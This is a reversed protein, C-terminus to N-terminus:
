PLYNKVERLVDARGAWPKYVVRLDLPYTRNAEPNPIVLQFDWAPNTDDGAPTNGGGSPSQAFRLYPNPRFIYILVMDGLRGYFFSEAYRLPSLNRFLSAPDETAAPPPPADAALITADRGHLQTAFQRWQGQPGRFYISKDEPANMYSAWFIGLFNNTFNTHTPTARYAIDLYYPEKLEFRTTSAVGFVPTPGQTLEAATPSLQRLAMPAHRPEFFVRADAPRPRGDFYHELNLGAYAPVFPNAPRSPTSLAFVGNYGARHDGAPANTGITAALQSVALPATLPLPRIKLDRFAVVGDHIQLALPSDRRAQRRLTVKSETRKSQAFSAAAAPSDLDVDILKEGDLWHEVHLGHVLIRAHHWVNPAAPAARHPAIYDYLAGSSHRPTSLADPNALDDTIQYELGTPELRDKETLSQIRYKIGSNAGPAAHWSFTLEFDTFSAETLLYVPKGRGPTTVLAGDAVEWSPTPAPSQSSWRWGALSHGNFLLQWGAQIEAPTLTNPQALLLASLAVLLLVPRM